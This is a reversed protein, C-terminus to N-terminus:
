CLFNSHVHTGEAVSSKLTNVRVYRPLSPASSAAAATAAAAAAAVPDCGDNGGASATAAGGGASGAKGKRGSALAAELASKREWVARALEHKAGGKVTRHRVCMEHTLVAALSLQSTDEVWPGRVRALAARLVPLVKLVESVLAQVTPRIANPIKLEENYLSQRVGSGSEVADIIQASFEHALLKPVAPETTASAAGEVASSADKSPVQPAPAPSNSVCVACRKAAGKRLQGKSFKSADHDISCAACLPM